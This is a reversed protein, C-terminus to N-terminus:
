AARGLAPDSLAGAGDAGIAQVAFWYAKFPTLGNVKTHSKTTTLVFSWETGPLAPDSETRYVSYSYAGPMKTWILEAEGVVGTMSASKMKPQGVPGSPERQKAMEFGSNTLIQADGGAVLRVYDATANLATIVQGVKATRVARANESGKIARAIANSLSTELTSLAALPVPLDPFVLANETLKAIVNILVVL